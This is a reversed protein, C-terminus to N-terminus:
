KIRKLITRVHKECFCINFERKILRRIENTTWNNKKKLMQKLTKLNDKSLKPKPGGGKKPILGEYSNENWRNQWLYGTMKTVGIKKAAVEVSDGNYRYRIFYLKNLIKPNEEGGRILENIEKKTLHRKIEHKNTKIM